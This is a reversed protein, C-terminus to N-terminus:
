IAFDLSADPGTLYTADGEGGYQMLAVEMGSYGGIIPRWPMVVVRM